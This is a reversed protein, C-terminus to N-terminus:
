ELSEVPTFRQLLPELYERHNALRPVKNQGGLKGREKMWRYFSGQPLVHLKPSRLTLDYSRKAAYDSNAEKLAEDFSDRFQGLDSPPTAFEIAWEHAGAKESDMYIPAGTYEEVAAGTRDCAKSLAKEANDIILEEGFSNIFHKTRGSVQIRFPSTSTFRVTDGIMYRWLGGNTSIVLAYDEGKEVEQLSLVRPTEEELEGFPIFEYYIGNDLMLLMDDAGLRDQVAFFGESANYNELYSVGESPLLQRFQEKYPSFRVGGHMFLELEPWIELINKAGSVELIRKLLVLTWSPVGAISRVDEKMSIRAMREIKAEWDEMLAVSRGPTRKLDAWYPLNRVLISSLDGIHAKGSETDRIQSSGGLVLSKGQYLSSKECQALYLAVMDKGGKYHCKKLSEPSMPIYKSRDSTTGSSMAFWRVRGPWLLDREGDMAREIYPKLGEYDSVPVQERFGKIGQMRDLGHEKGWETRKGKNLLSALEANQVGIPDAKFAEIRRVRNRLFHSLLSTLSM